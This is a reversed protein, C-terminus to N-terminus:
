FDEERQPKQMLIMDNTSVLTKILLALKAVEAILPNAAQIDIPLAM